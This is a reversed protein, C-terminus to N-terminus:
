IPISSDPGKSAAITVQTGSGGRSLDLSTPGEDLKNM